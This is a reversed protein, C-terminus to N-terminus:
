PALQGPGPMKRQRPNILAVLCLQDGFLQLSKQARASMPIRRDRCYLLLAATLIQDEVIFELVTDLDPGPVKSQSPRARVPDPELRIRFRIPGGERDRQPGCSVVTGAPLPQRSRRHYERVAQMVEAPQFLLNRVESPM